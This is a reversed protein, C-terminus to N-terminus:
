AMSEARKLRQLSRLSLIRIESKMRMHSFTRGTSKLILTVSTSITSKGSWRRRITVPGNEGVLRIEVIMPSRKAHKFIDAVKKSTGPIYGLLALQIANLITSKGAGNPGYLYTQGDFTYTAEDVRHLNKMYISQIKM